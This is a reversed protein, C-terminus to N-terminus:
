VLQGLFTSLHDDLDNALTRDDRPLVHAGVTTILELEVVDVEYRM